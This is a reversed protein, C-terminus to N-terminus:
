PTHGPTTANDRYLSAGADAIVKATEEAAEMVREVEDHRRDAPPLKGTEEAKALALLQALDDAARRELEQREEDTM